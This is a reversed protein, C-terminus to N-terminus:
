GSGLKVGVGVGVGVGIRVRNAIQFAIVNMKFEVASAFQIVLGLCGM